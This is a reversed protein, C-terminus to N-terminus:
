TAGSSACNWAVAAIVHGKLGTERANADSATGDLSRKLIGQLIAALRFMAYVIYFAWETPDVDPRGVRRCYIHLYENESPIGLSALPKDAMGRFQQATLHWPLMHYALDALPHGITSLEWDLLALVRPEVPHVIMNDLRLDGHFVASEDGPPIHQPLWEILRDMAEIRETAAAQYQRTWRAIQREMFRGPRGYDALGVAEIDVRHLAAVTQNINDHLAAREAPALEPLAPDWLIRGEVFEMVYFPTGTVAADDCYALVRPIPVDTDQLAKLVRYERDVAHASPLLVGSPKRRLAFRRGASDTVCYTPNSQGGKIRQAALPGSSGEVHREFYGALRTLDLDDDPSM